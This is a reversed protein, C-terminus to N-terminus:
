CPGSLAPFKKCCFAGLHKKCVAKAEKKEEEQCAKLFALGPVLAGLSATYGFRASNSNFIYFSWSFRMPDEIKENADSIDGTKKFAQPMQVWKRPLEVPGSGRWWSRQLLGSGSWKWGLRDVQRVRCVESTTTVSFPLQLSSPFIFWSPFCTFSIVHVKFLKWFVWLTTGKQWSVRHGVEDKPEHGALFHGPSGSSGRRCMSLEFTFYVWWDVLWGFPVCFFFLWNTFTRMWINLSAARDFDVGKAVWRPVQLPTGRGWSVRWWALTKKPPWWLRQTLTIDQLWSQNSTKLWKLVSDIKWIMEDWFPNCILFFHRLDGILLHNLGRGKSWGVQNAAPMCPALPKSPETPKRWWCGWLWAGLGTRVM